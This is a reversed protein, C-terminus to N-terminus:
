EWPGGGLAALHHKVVNLQTPSSSPPWLIASPRMAIVLFKADTVAANTKLANATLLLSAWHNVIRRRYM